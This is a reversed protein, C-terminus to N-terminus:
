HQCDSLRVEELDRAEGEVGQDADEGFKGRIHITTHEPRTCQPVKQITLVQRWEDSWIQRQAGWIDGITHM